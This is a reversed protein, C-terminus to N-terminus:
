KDLEITVTEKSGFCSIDMTQKPNVINEYAEMIKPMQIAMWDIMEENMAWAGSGILSNCWLGSEYMFAHILEHRINKNVLEQLPWDGDEEKEDESWHRVYIKKNKVDCNGDMFGIDFQPHEKITLINIEYETGLINVNM